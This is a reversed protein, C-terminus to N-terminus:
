RTSIPRNEPPQELRLAEDPMFVKRILPVVIRSYGTPLLRKIRDIFRADAGILIRARNREIGRLIVGAAQEPSTQSNEGFTRVVIARQEETRGGGLRAAAAINTRVGGPFVTSVAVSRSILENRLCDTFGRVGFKAASYASSEPPGFFGYVSSVNALHSGPRALMLPLFARSMRVVGWFNITMLWEFDALSTRLFDGSGLAVGANNLLIIPQDPYAQAVYDAFATIQEADAVDLRRSQVKGGAQQILVATEDLGARNVDTALVLAGARAAGIAVARGIGSAAGTIIFVSDRVRTM